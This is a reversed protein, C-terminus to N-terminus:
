FMNNISIVPEDSLVFHFHADCLFDHHHMMFMLCSLHGSPVGLASQWYPVPLEKVLHALLGLSQPM